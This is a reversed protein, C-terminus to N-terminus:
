KKMEGMQENMVSFEFFAMVFGNKQKATIEIFEYEEKDHDQELLQILTDLAESRSNSNNINNTCLNVIFKEFLIWVM